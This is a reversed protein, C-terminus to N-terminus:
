DSELLEIAKQYKKLRSVTSKERAKIPDLRTIDSNHKLDALKVTRAIPNDKIAAIYDMYPVGKTHTLLVLADIIERDFHLMLDDFTYFTDEVVDHLLAVITTAEDPMQEALHFPHFAYPTGGIDYQNRHAFFCIKMAQKTKDTYIM